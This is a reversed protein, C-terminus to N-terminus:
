WDGMNHRLRYTHTGVMPRVLVNFVWGFIALPILVGRVVSMPGYGFKGRKYDEFRESLKALAFVFLLTVAVRAFLALWRSDGTNNRFAGSLMQWFCGIGYGLAIMGLLKGIITASDGWVWGVGLPILVIWLASQAFDGWDRYVILRGMKVESLAKAYGIVGAILVAIAAALLLGEMAKDIWGSITAAAAGLDPVVVSSTDM